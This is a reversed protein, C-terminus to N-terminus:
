YAVLISLSFTLRAAEIYRKYSRNIARVPDPKLLHRPAPRAVLTISKVKTGAERGRIILHHIGPSLAWFRPTTVGSWTVTRSELGSTVPIQWAM